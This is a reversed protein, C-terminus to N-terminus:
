DIRPEKHYIGELTRLSFLQMDAVNLEFSDGIFLFTSLALATEVGPTSVVENSLPVISEALLENVTRPIRTPYRM